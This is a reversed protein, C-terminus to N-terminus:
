AVSLREAELPVPDSFCFASADVPELEPSPPEDEDSPPEPDDPDDLEDPADSPPDVDPELV